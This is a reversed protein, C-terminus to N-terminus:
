IHERITGRGSELRAKYVLALDFAGNPIFTKGYKECGLILVFERERATPWIGVPRFRRRHPRKAGPALADVYFRIEGLGSHKKTLPKFEEVGDGAWDETAGLIALTADFQARVEADQSEYWQHIPNQDDETIYDMFSWLGM